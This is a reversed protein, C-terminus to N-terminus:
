FINSRNMMAKIMTLQLNIIKISPAKLLKEYNMFDFSHVSSEQLKRYAEAKVKFKRSVM